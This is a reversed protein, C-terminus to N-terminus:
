TKNEPSTQKLDKLYMWKLLQAAFTETKYKLM